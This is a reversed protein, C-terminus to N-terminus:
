LLKKEFDRTSKRNSRPPIVAIAGMNEVCKLITQSDYARDAIVFNAKKNDLLAEACQSDHVQGCTLVM